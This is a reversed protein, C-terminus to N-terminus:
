LRASTPKRTLRFHAEAQLEIKWLWTWLNTQRTGNPRRQVNQVIVGETELQRLHSRVQRTSLGTRRALDELSPWALWEQNVRDALAIAVMRTGSSWHSPAFDLVMTMAHISM